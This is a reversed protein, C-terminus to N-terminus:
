LWFSLLSDEDIEAPGIERHSLPLNIYFPSSLMWFSINLTKFCSDLNNFLYHEQFIESLWFGWASIVSGLTKEAPGAWFRGQCSVFVVISNSVWECTKRPNWSRYFDWSLTSCLLESKIAWSIPSFLVWYETGVVNEQHLPVEYGPNWPLSWLPLALRHVKVNSYMSLFEWIGRGRTICGQAYNSWRELGQKKLAGGVMYLM